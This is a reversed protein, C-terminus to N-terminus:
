PQDVYGPPRRGTQVERQVPLVTPNCLNCGRVFPAVPFWCHGNLSKFRMCLHNQNRDSGNSVRDGDCCIVVSHKWCVDFLFDICKPTKLADAMVHKPIFAVKPVKPGFFFALFMRLINSRWNRDHSVLNGLSLGILHSELHVAWLGKQFGQPQAGPSKKLAERYLPEAEVLQGQAELLAALNNLRQLTEPHDEGLKAKGPCPLCLRIACIAHGCLLIGKSMEPWPASLHNQLSLSEVFYLDM